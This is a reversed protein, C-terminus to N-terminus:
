ANPRGPRFKQTCQNSVVSCCLFLLIFWECWIPKVAVTVTVASQSIFMCLPRVDFCDTTDTTCRAAATRLQARLDGDGDSCWLPTQMTNIMTLTSVFISAVRHVVCLRADRYESLNSLFEDIAIFCRRGLSAIKRCSIRTRTARTETSMIIIQCPETPDTPSAFEICNVLVVGAGATQWVSEIKFRSLVFLEDGQCDFYFLQNTQGNVRGHRWKCVHLIFHIGDSSCEKKRNFCEKSKSIPTAIPRFLRNSISSFAFEMRSEFYSSVTMDGFFKFVSRLEQTRKWSCM